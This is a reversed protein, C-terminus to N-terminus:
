WVSTNFYLCQLTLVITVPESEKSECECTVLLSKFPNIKSYIVIYTCITVMLTTHLKIILSNTYICYITTSNINEAKTWM